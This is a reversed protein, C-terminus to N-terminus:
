SWRAPMNWIRHKRWHALVRVVWGFVNLVDRYLDVVAGLEEGIRRRALLSALDYVYFTLYAANWALAQAGELKGLRLIVVVLAVLTSSAILSLLFQGVFSFDRGCLMAYILAFALGFAASWVPFGVHRASTVVLAASVLLFPTFGISVSVDMPGGRFSIRALCLVLLLGVYGGLATIPALSPLPSVALGAVACVSAAHLLSVKRIFDLRRGYREETVNNPVELPDPVYNHVYM